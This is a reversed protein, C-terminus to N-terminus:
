WLGRRTANPHGRAGGPHAPRHLPERLAERKPLQRCLWARRSLRALDRQCQPRPGLGNRYTRPLTPLPEALVTQRATAPDPTVEIAPKPADAATSDPTVGIAPKATPHGWRGPPRVPVGATKLYSTATERRIGTEQEIRRLSWGLRGLAIVQQKKEESLVNSM